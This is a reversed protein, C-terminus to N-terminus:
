GDVLACLAACCACIPRSGWQAGLRRVRADGGTRVVRWLVDKRESVWAVSEVRLPHIAFLLAVLALALAGTMRLLLLLVLVANAAHLALNMGHYGAPPNGFLQFDLMLSLWTLPHWNSAHNTTFAWYISQLNFGQRIQANGTVYDPDDFNVFQCYVVPWFTVLTM